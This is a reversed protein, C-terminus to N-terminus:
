IWYFVFCFLFFFSVVKELILRKAIAIQQEDGIVTFGEEQGNTPTITAGSKQHIEKIVSGGKGIVRGIFDKSVPLFAIAMTM